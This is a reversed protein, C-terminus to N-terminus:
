DEDYVEIYNYNIKQEGDPSYCKINIGDELLKCTGVASEPKHFFCNDCGVSMLVEVLKFQKGYLKRIM